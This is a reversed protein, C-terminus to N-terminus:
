TNPQTEPQASSTAGALVQGIVNGDLAILTYNYMVDGYGEGSVPNKVGKVKWISNVSINLDEDPERGELKKVIQGEINGCANKTLTQPLNERPNGKADVKTVYATIDGNKVIQVEDVVQSFNGYKDNLKMPEKIKFHKEENLGPNTFKKLGSVRNVTAEHDGYTERLQTLVGM